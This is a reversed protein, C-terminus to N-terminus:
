RWRSRDPHSGLRGDISAFDIVGREAAVAVSSHVAGDRRVVVVAVDTAGCSESADKMLWSGMPIMLSLRLLSLMLSM